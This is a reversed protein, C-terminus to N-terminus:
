IETEIASRSPPGIPAEFADGASLAFTPALLMWPSMMGTITLIAIVVAALIM